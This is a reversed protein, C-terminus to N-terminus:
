LGNCVDEQNTIAKSHNIITNNSHNPSPDPYTFDTCPTLQRLVVSSAQRKCKWYPDEFFFRCQRCSRQVQIESFLETQTRKKM